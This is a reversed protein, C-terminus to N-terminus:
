LWGALSRGLITELGRVETEFELRLRRRTSDQMPPIVSESTARNVGRYLRRAGMRGVLHWLWDLKVRRVTERAQRMAGALWAYRDVYSENSRSSLAQPCHSADIQLFTYVSRAVEAPDAAIDDFLVVLIQQLPFYELWRHLHTCYL